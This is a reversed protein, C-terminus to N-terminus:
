EDVSRYRLSKLEKKWKRTEFCSRMRWDLIVPQPLWVAWCMRWWKSVISINPRVRLMKFETLNWGVDENSTAHVLLTTLCVLMEALMMDPLIYPSINRRKVLVKYAMISSQTLLIVINYSLTLQVTCSDDNSRSYNILVLIM